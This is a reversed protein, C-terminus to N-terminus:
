CEKLKKKYFVGGFGRVGAWMLWRRWWWIGEDQMAERLIRDADKRTYISSYKNNKSYLYDHLTASQHATNGALFYAVPIRPVSAFDTIFGKPVVILDGEWTQYKLPEVLMWKEKCEEVVLSTLFM